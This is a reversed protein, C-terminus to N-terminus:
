FDFRLEAFRCHELIWEAHPLAEADWRATCLRAFQMGCIDLRAGVVPAAASASRRNWPMKGLLRGMGCYDTVGAFVLGGGVFVPIALFAWNIAWALAVGLLVLSGAAIRVQREISIVRSEGRVVPLGM